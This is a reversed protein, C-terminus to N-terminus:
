AASRPSVHTLRLLTTSGIPTRNQLNGLRDRLRGWQTKM